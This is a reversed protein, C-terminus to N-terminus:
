APGLTVPVTSVSWASGNWRAIAPRNSSAGAAICRNPTDCEIANLPPSSGLGTNPTSWKTGDWREVHAHRTYRGRDPNYVLTTGVSFCGNSARM